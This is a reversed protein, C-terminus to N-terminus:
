LCMWSRCAQDFVSMGSRLSAHRISSRCEQDLYSGNPGVHRIPSGNSILIGWRFVWWLSVLRMLSQCAEGSVLMPSGYFVLMRSWAHHVGILSAQRCDTEVLLLIKMNCKKLYVAEWNKLFAKLACVTSLNQLYNYLQVSFPFM